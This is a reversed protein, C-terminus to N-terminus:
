AKCYQIFKVFYLSSNQDEVVINIFLHEIYWDYLLFLHTNSWETFFVHTTNTFPYKMLRLFNDLGSQDFM